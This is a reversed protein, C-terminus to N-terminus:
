AAPSEGDDAAIVRVGIETRFTPLRSEALEDYDIGGFNTLIDFERMTTAAIFACRGEPTVGVPPSEEVQAVVCAYDAVASAIVNDDYHEDGIACVVFVLHWVEHDRAAHAAATLMAQPGDSCYVDNLREHLGGLRDGIESM